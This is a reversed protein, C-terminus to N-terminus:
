RLPLKPGENEKGFLAVPITTCAVVVFILRWAPLGGKQGELAKLLAAQIWGGAM